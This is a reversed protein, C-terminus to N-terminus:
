RRSSARRTRRTATQVDTIVQVRKVFSKGLVRDTYQQATRRRLSRLVARHDYAPDLASSIPHLLRTAVPPESGPEHMWQKDAQAIVLSNTDAALLTPTPMPLPAPIDSLDDWTMLLILHPSLPVRIELANVPGLMPKTPRTDIAQTALPWLVVPQDSFAVVPASFRLLRWRMCGLISSLKQSGRIMDHFRLTWFRDVARGRVADIDGGADALASAPASQVTVAQQVQNIAIARATEFFMPGRLMQVAVFQALKGKPQETITGGAAVAALVPGAVDEMGALSAEVDDIETGDLRTRRYARSRTGANEVKLTVCDERGPVHVAVLGDVAFNRQYTAAVIHGQKVKPYSARDLVNRPQRVEVAHTRRRDALVKRQKRNMRGFSLGARPRDENNPHSVSAMPTLRYVTPTPTPTAAGAGTAIASAM